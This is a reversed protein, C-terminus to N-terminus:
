ISAWAIFAIYMVTITAAIAVPAFCALWGITAYGLVKAVILCATIFWAALWM